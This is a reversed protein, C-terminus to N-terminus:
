SMNLVETLVYPTPERARNKLQRVLEFELACHVVRTIATSSNQQLKETRDWQWNISFILPAWLWSSRCVHWSQNVVLAMGCTGIEPVRHLKLRAAKSRRLTCAYAGCPFCLISLFFFSKLMHFQSIIKNMWKWFYAQFLVSDHGQVWNSTKPMDHVVTTVALIVIRLKHLCVNPMYTYLFHLIKSHYM